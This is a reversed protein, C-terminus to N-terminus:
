RATKRRLWSNPPNPALWPRVLRISGARGVLLKETSSSRKIKVDGAMIESFALEDPMDERDCGQPAYGQITLRDRDQRFPLLWSKCGATGEIRSTKFLVVIPRDSVAENGLSISQARWEGWMLWPADNYLDSSVEHPRELLAEGDRGVFAVRSGPRGEILRTTQMVAAFAHEVPDLGSGCNPLSRSGSVPSQAPPLIQRARVTTLQGFRGKFDFHVCKSMAELDGFGSLLHIPSHPAVKTGTVAVLRWEGNLQTPNMEKWDPYPQPSADSSGVSGRAGIPPETARRDLRDAPACATLASLLFALLSLVLTCLNTAALRNPVAIWHTIAVGHSGAAFSDQVPSYHM